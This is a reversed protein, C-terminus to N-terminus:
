TRNEDARTDVLRRGRHPCVNHYAKLTEASSRVVLISDDGIDYTIFNGIEPVEEVRGAMQWVKAWLKDAEARAYDPSLFAEVPYTVPEALDEVSVNAPKGVVNLNMSKSM